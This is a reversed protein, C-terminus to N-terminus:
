ANGFEKDLVAMMANYASAVDSDPVGANPHMLQLTAHAQALMRALRSNEAQYWHETPSLGPDPKGDSISTLHLSM